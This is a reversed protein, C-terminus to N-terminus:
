RELTFAKEFDKKKKVLKQTHFTSVKIVGAATM